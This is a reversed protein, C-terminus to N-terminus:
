RFIEELRYTLRQAQPWGAQVFIDLVEILANRCEINEQFLSRYEALFREIIRVFVPIALSEFEYGGSRGSQLIRSILLFVGTPDIPIFTEATEILYHTLSPVPVVALEDMIPKTELYLRERQQPDLPQNPQQHDALADSAFYLQTAASNLVRLLEQLHERDPDSWEKEKKRGAIIADVATKASHVISGFLQISHHRVADEETTGVVGHTLAGRLIFLMHHLEDINSLPNTAMEYVTQRAVSQDQWVYLRTLINVCSERVEKAGDGSTVRNLINLAVSAIKEGHAGALRDLTWPLGQLVGKSKEESAFVELLEWMLDQSNRYLNVLHSAIQYRVAPVPDRALRRINLLLNDDSCDVHSALLCLGRAAEIRPIDGGWSPHKDFQNDYEANHIPLQHKGAVTLVDRVFAGAGSACSLKDIKSIRQCAGVLSCFAHDRQEHHVGDLDATEVATRLTELAPMIKEVAEATPTENLYLRGFDSVSAELQRLNRNPEADVPVGRERLYEEEGYPMWSVNPSRHLRNEPVANQEKLTKIVTQAQQSIIMSEPICGLLRDRVTEHGISLISQEILNRQRENLLQFLAKILEGCEASTDMATLVSPSVLLPLLRRGLAAPRSSGMLLLRRWFLALRNEAAVLGLVQDLVSDQGEDTLREIENQWVDVMQLPEDRHGSDWISSYDTIFTVDKGDFVFSHVPPADESSTRHEQRFYSDAVSIAVHTAMVPEKRMLEPFTHALQYKAIGYDQKKNSILPLIQGPGMPTPETSPEVYDFVAIYLDAVLAPDTWLLSKIERSLVPMEDSGHQALHDPEFSRRILAASAMSDSTFTRCVARLSNLALWATYRQEAWEFELLRRAVRGIATRQQETANETEVMVNIARCIEFAIRASLTQSVADLFAPWPGAESGVITSSPVTLLSGIIYSFLVDGKANPAALYAILPQVDDVNRACEVCISPAVLKGFEPIGDASAFAFFLEWFRDCEAMWLARLHLVLSPRVVICLDPNTKFLEVTKSPEGSLLLRAVAYDFLVHHSFVLLDRNTKTETIQWEAIIHASLLQMLPDVADSVYSRDVRLRRTCVMENCIRRLVTERADGRMDDSLVRYEWYRSLLESETQIPTIQDASVGAGLLDAVLRVNFPVRILEKLASPAKLIVTYLAPAQNQIQHLEENSFRPVNLHSITGFEPDSLEAPPRPGSTLSFIERLRPSYRLDFKRISAVVNWRSESQAIVRIVERLVKAAPEARAADLADIILIGKSSGPWNLLVETVDHKLGLDAQLGSNSTAELRDAALFVVDTQQERLKHFLDYLAGSKGAGPEGVVLLSRQQSLTALEETANRKIKITTQGYRIEALDRLADLVAQSYKQLQQIDPTYSLSAKPIINSALLQNQFGRRDLGSRSSALQACVAVLTKWAAGEETPDVLVSMRLLNAAEVRNASGENFDLTQIDLLTFLARLDGEPLTENKLANWQSRAHKCFISLAEKEDSNQAADDLPSDKLLTRVRSLVSRAANRVKSSANSTTVLVLRDKSPELPREWPRGKGYKHSANAIYQSVFQAIASGLESNSDASLNVSTKAQIFAFGGSSTGVLLDDVPQETQCRLFELSGNPDALGWPLPAGHEAL